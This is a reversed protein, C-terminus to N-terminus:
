AARTDGHFAVSVGTLAAVPPAFRLVTGANGVDVSVNAKPRGPTVQWSPSADAPGADGSPCTTDTVKNVVVPLSRLYDVIEQATGADMPFGPKEGGDATLSPQSFKPM